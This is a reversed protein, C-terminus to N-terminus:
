NCYVFDISGGVEAFPSSKGQAVIIFNLSTNMNFESYPYRYALTQNFICKRLTDINRVGGILYQPNIAVRTSPNPSLSENLVGEAIGSDSVLVTTGSALQLVGSELDEDKFTPALRTKNLFDISLPVYVVAPLLLKLLHLLTPELPAPVM